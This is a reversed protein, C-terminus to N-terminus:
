LVLHGHALPEWIKVDQKLQLAWVCSPSGRKKALLQKKEKKKPPALNKGYLVCLVHAQQLFVFPFFSIVEAPTIAMDHEQEEM